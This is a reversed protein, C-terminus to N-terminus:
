HERGCAGRGCHATFGSRFKFGLNDIIRWHVETVSLRVSLRVSVDYCLRSIYINCRASFIVCIPESVNQLHPCDFMTAGNKAWGTDESIRRSLRNFDMSIALSRDEKCQGYGSIGTCHAKTLHCVLQIVQFPRTMLFMTLLFTPRPGSVFSLSCIEM